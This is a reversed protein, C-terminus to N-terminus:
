LLLVTCDRSRIHVKTMSSLIQVAIYIFCLELTWLPTPCRPPTPHKSPTQCRTANPTRPPLMELWQHENWHPGADGPNLALLEWLTEEPNCRWPLNERDGYGAPGGTLPKASQLLGCSTKRDKRDQHGLPPCEDPCECTMLTNYVVDEASFRTYWIKM